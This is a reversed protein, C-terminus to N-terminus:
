KISKLIGDTIREANALITLSVNVGTSSPVAAGDTIFKEPYGFVEGRLDAVGSSKNESMRCSGVQHATHFHLDDTFIEVYPAFPFYPDYYIDTLGSSSTQIGPIIAEAFAILTRDYVREVPEKNSFIVKLPTCASTLAVSAIATLAQRRKYLKYNM